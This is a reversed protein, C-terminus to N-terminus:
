ININGLNYWIRAKLDIYNIVKKPKIMPESCDSLSNTSFANKECYRTCYACFDM